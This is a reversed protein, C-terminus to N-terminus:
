AFPSDAIDAHRGLHRELLAGNTELAGALSGAYAGRPLRGLSSLQPSFVGNVFVLEAAAEAGFGHRSALEAARASAPDGDALKFPTRAIPAFNTHRWHEDRQSPFGVQEFRAIAGRRMGDLWAPRAAAGAGPAAAAREELEAFNTLHISKPEALQTM